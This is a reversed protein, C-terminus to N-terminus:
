EPLAAFVMGEGCRISDVHRHFEGLRVIRVFGLLAEELEPVLAAVEVALGVRVRLGNVMTM